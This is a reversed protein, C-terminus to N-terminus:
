PWPSFESARLQDLTAIAMEYQNEEFCNDVLNRQVISLEWPTGSNDASM